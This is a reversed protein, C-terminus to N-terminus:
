CLYQHAKISWIATQKDLQLNVLSCVSLVSVCVTSYCVHTYYISFLFMFVYVCVHVCMRTSRYKLPGDNVYHM